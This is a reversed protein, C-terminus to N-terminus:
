RPVVSGDMKKRRSKDFGRSQIQRKPKAFTGEDKSKARKMHARDGSEAATKKGHCKSCRLRLNGPGFFQRRVEPPAHAVSWLPNTHELELSTVREIKTHHGVFQIRPDHLDTWQRYILRETRKWREPSDGCDWCKLGDRKEVFAFQTDRRTHLFFVNLCDPEGEKGSHWTRARRGVTVPEGCWRCGSAHKPM